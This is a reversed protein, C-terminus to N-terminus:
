NNLLRAYDEIAHRNGKQSKDERKNRAFLTVYHTSQVSFGGFFSIGKPRFRYSVTAQSRKLFVKDLGNLFLAITRNMDVGNPSQPSFGAKRLAQQIDAPTYLDVERASARSFLSMSGGPFPYTKFHKAAGSRGWFGPKWAWYRSAKEAAQQALGLQGLFNMGVVLLIYLPILIVLEATANGEEQALGALARKWKERM